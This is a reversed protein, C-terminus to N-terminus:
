SFNSYEIRNLERQLMEESLKYPFTQIYDNYKYLWREYMEEDGNFVEIGFEGM